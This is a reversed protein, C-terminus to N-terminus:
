PIKISLMTTITESLNYIGCVIIVLPTLLLIGSKKNESLNTMFPRGQYNLIEVCFTAAMDALLICSNMMSPKFLDENDLDKEEEPM